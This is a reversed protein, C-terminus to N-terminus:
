QGDPKITNQYLVITSRVSIQCYPLFILSEREKRSVTEKPLRSHDGRNRYLNDLM